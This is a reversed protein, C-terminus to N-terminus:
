NELYYKEELSSECQKLQEVSEYDSLNHKNIVFCIAIAIVILTYLFLKFAVGTHKIM